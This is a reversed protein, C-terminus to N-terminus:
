LMDCGQKFREESKRSRTSYFGSDRWPGRARFSEQGAQERLRLDSCVGQWEEGVGDGWGGVQAEAGAVRAWLSQRSCWALPEQKRAKARAFINVWFITRGFIGMDRERVEKLDKGFTVERFLVEM